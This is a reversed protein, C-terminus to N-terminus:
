VTFLLGGTRRDKSFGILHSTIAIASKWQSALRPEHYESSAPHLNQLM